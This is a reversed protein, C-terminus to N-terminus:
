GLWYLEVSSSSRVDVLQSCTLPFGHYYMASWSPTVENGNQLQVTISTFTVYTQPLDECSQIYYGELAVGAWNAAFSCCFSDWELSTCSKAGTTPDVICATVSWDCVGTSSNCNNGGITGSLTDGSPVKQSPGCAVTSGAVMYPAISWYDGGGCDGSSGWQLVPQAITPGVWTQMVAPFLYVVQGDNSSPAAPLNWTASVLDISPPNPTVNYDGSIIWGCYGADPSCSGTDQGVGRMVGPARTLGDFLTGNPVLTVRSAPFWGFPTLISPDSGGMKTDTSRALNPVLGLVVVTVVAIARMRCYDSWGRRAAMGFRLSPM